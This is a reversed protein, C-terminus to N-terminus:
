DIRFLKGFPLADTTVHLRLKRLGEQDGVTPIHTIHMECNRLKKLAQMAQKASPNFQASIALATLTQDLNLSESYEGYVEKKMRGISTVTEQTLLDLDDPLKVLVKLANLLAASEAHLLPSNKGTVIHKDPLGIAAGCYISQHGKGKAKAEQAAQRAKSVVTREEISIGIKEIIKEMRQVTEEKELGLAENEAYRFYRRIIEHRAATRTIEDNIIGQRAMNVGMDTPSQYANAPNHKSAVSTILKHLIPFADIDRNYNVTPTKYAQLHFHDIVNFDGIDATAAEYAVNVPHDIPLNWIPFTEFKAFGSRVKRARHDHYMQTLCTALKGSNPGTGTVIVIPKTTEIYPQAGYGEASIIKDIDHPYNKIPTHFYVQKAREQRAPLCTQLKRQLRAAAEEGTYFTIVVASVPLGRRELDEIDKITQDEYTLGYDYRIRGKQLDRASVCYIIDLDSKLRELLQLKADPQYGPLVREAHHDACLKGGFELYLKGDFGNVRKLIAETQATLYKQTDFGIAHM